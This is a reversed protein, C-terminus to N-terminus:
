GRTELEWKKFILFYTFNNYSVLVTHIFLIPIGM